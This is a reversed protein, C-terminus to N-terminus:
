GNYSGKRNMCSIDQAAKVLTEEDFDSIDRSEIQSLLKEFNNRQIIYFQKSPNEIAVMCDDNVIDIGVFYSSNVGTTTSLRSSIFKNIKVINEIYNRDGKKTNLVFSADEIKGSISGNYFHDNIIYIYKNGFLIHDIHLVNISDIKFSFDNILLYDEKEVIKYIKKYYIEKFHNKQYAKKSPIFVVFFILLLVVIPAVIVFILQPTTLAFIM